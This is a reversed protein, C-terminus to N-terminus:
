QIVHRAIVALELRGGLHDHEKLARELAATYDTWHIWGQREFLLIYVELSGPILGRLREEVKKIIPQAAGFTDFERVLALFNEGAKGEHLALAEQATQSAYGLVDDRMQVQLAIRM